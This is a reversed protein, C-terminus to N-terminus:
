RCFPCCGGCAATAAAASTAFLGIVTTAIVLIRTTM